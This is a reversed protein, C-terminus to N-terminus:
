PLISFTENECKNIVMEKESLFTGVSNLFM